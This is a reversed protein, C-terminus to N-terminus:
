VPRDVLDAGTLSQSRPAGATEQVSRSYDGTENWALRATLDLANVSAERNQTLYTVRSRELGHPSIQCSRGTLKSKATTSVNRFPRWPEMSLEDAGCPECDNKRWATEARHNAWVIAATDTPASTAAKM